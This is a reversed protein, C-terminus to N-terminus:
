RRAGFIADAIDGAKEPQTKGNRNTTTAHAGVRSPSSGSLSSRVSESDSPRVSDSPPATVANAGRPLRATDASDNGILDHPNRTRADNARRWRARSKERRERAQDFYDRWASVTVRRSRDLLKVALLATVASDSRPLISPWAVDVTVREGARWSEAMTGVYAMFAPALDDPFRRALERFKPDNPLSTSVDMVDFGETRSM